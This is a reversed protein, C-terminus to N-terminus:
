KNLVDYQSTLEETYGSFGPLEFSWSGDESETFIINLNKESLDDDVEIYKVWYATNDDGNYKAYVEASEITYVYGADVAANQLLSLALNDDLEGSVEITENNNLQESLEDVQARLENNQTKLTSIQQNLDDVRKNGDMMEWVGFAIGGVALIGLLVMGLLMGKNSKKVGTAEMTSAESANTPAAVPAGGVPTIPANTTTQRMGNTQVNQNPEM